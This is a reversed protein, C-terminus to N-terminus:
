KNNVLPKIVELTIDKYFASIINHQKLLNSIKRSRSAIFNVNRYIVNNKELNPESLINM